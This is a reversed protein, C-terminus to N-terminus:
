WGRLVTWIVSLNCVPALDHTCRGLCLRGSKGRGLCKRWSGLRGGALRSIFDRWRTRPSDRHRRRWHSLKEGERLSRGAVREVFNERLPGTCRSCLQLPQVSGGTLRMKRESMFLLYKFEEMQPLIEGGVRLPCVVRKQDLVMAEFKSISIRMGAAECEAAVWGLVHQLDQNSSALLVVDGM